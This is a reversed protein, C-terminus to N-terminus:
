KADGSMPLQDFMADIVRDPGQRPTVASQRGSSFSVTGAAARCFYQWQWGVYGTHSGGGHARVVAQTVSLGLRSGGMRTTFFPEFITERLNDPIGDMMPSVCSLRTLAM